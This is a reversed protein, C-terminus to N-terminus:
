VTQQQVNITYGLAKIKAISQDTFTKNGILDALKKSTDCAPYIAKTGYNSKIQVTITMKKGRKHTTNKSLILREHSTM